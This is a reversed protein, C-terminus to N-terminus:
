LFSCSFLNKNIEGVYLSLIIYKGDNKWDLKNIGSKQSSIIIKNQPNIPKFLNITKNLLFAIGDHIKKFTGNIILMVISIPWFTCFVINYLVHKSLLNKCQAFYSFGVLSWFYLNFLIITFM